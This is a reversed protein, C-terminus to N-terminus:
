SFLSPAQAASVSDVNKSIDVQSTLPHGGLIACPFAPDVKKGIRCAAM